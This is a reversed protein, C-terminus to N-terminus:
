HHVIATSSFMDRDNTMGVCSSDVLPATGAAFLSLAGMKM